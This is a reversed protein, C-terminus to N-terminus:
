IQAQWLSFTNAFFVLHGTKNVGANYREMLGEIEPYSTRTKSFTSSLNIGPYLAANKYPWVDPRPHMALQVRATLIMNFYFVHLLLDCYKTKLLLCICPSCYYFYLYLSQLLLLVFVLVVIISTCICPSCYYFHM